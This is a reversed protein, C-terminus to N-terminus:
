KSIVTLNVVKMPEQALVCGYLGENVLVADTVTLNWFKSSDTNVRFNSYKRVGQRFPRDNNFIICGPPIPPVWENFEM